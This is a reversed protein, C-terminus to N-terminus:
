QKKKRTKEGALAKYKLIRNNNREQKSKDHLNKEGKKM